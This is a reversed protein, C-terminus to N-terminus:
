IPVSERIRLQGFIDFAALVLYNQGAHNAGTLRLRIYRFEGSPPSSIRFVQTLYSGNLDHNNDRRDIMTWPQGGSRDNTVEIVWSKPHNNNVGGNQSRIAYYTPSILQNDKFDYGISQNPTNESLFMSDDSLAAANKPNWQGPSYVSDSFVHICQRDCVNGQFRKTLYGIIGECLPHSGPVFHQVVYSAKFGGVLHVPALEAINASLSRVDSEHDAKQQNLVSLCKTEIGEADKRVLSLDRSLAALGERTENGAERVSNVASCVQSVQVSVSEFQSRHREMESKTESQLERIQEELLHFRNEFRGNLDSLGTRVSSIADAQSQVKLEFDSGKRSERELEAILTLARLSDAVNGLLPILVPLVCEPSDGSHTRPLTEQTSSCFPITRRM